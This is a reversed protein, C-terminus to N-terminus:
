EGAEEMVEKWQGETGIVGPEWINNDVLSEWTKDNHTVKDGKSYGNTSEPQEWEPIVSPDPILVKTWLSPAKDPTWTEQSTHEVLCRYVIKIDDVMYNVKWDKPYTTDVAWFDYIDQVALAQMDSFTQAQIRAVSLATDISTGFKGATKETQALKESLASTNTELELIKSDLLSIEEKTETMQNELRNIQDEFVPTQLTVSISSSTPNIEWAVINTMNYYHAIETDALSITFESTKSPDEFITKLEEYTKGRIVIKLGESLISENFYAFIDLTSSDQFKIVFM